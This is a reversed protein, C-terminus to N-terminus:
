FTRILEYSKGATATGSDEYILKGNKYVKVDITAPEPNGVGILSVNVVFDFMIVKETLEFTNASSFTYNSDALIPTTLEKGSADKVLAILGDKKVGTLGVQKFYHDAGGGFSVEVKYSDPTNNIEANDDDDGCSSLFTVCGLLIM